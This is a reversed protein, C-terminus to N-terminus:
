RSRRLKWRTIMWAKMELKRSWRQVAIRWKNRYRFRFHLNRYRSLPSLRSKRIRVKLKEGRRSIRAMRIKGKGRVRM